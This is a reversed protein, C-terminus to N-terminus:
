NPISNILESVKQECNNYKNKARVEYDILEQINKCIIELDEIDDEFSKNFEENADGEWMGNLTAVDGQMEKLKKKINNLEEQVSDATNKLKQTNVKIKSIAM